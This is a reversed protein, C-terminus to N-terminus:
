NKRISFEYEGVLNRFDRFATDPYYGVVIKLGPGEGPICVYHDPHDEREISGNAAEVFLYEAPMNPIRIQLHYTSDTYLEPVATTRGDASVMSIEAKRRPKKIMREGMDWEGKWMIIGDDYWEVWMGDKKGDVFNGEAKMHGNPYWYTWIGEKKGDVKNGRAMIVSDYFEETNEETYTSTHQTYNEGATSSQRQKGNNCGSFCLTVTLLIIIPIQFFKM